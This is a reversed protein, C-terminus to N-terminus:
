GQDQISFGLLRKKELKAGEELWNLCHDDIKDPNSWAVTKLEKVTQSAESFLTRVIEDLSIVIRDSALAAEIMHIDKLMAKRDRAKKATEEIRYRLDTNETNRVIHLKKRAVMSARWENAFNSQHKRWEEYVELTMVIQHCIKLVAILIGRCNKSTPNQTEEGGAARAVSADIVLQRSTKKPM